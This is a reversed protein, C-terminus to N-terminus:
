TISVWVFANELDSQPLVTQDERATASNGTFKISTQENLANYSYTTTGGLSDQTLTHNSTPDYSCMLSLGFPEQETILRNMSDYTMTYAGSTDSATLLNDNNDYSYAITNVTTGAQVWTSGTVRGNVDYSYNITRELADFKSTLRSDANYSM